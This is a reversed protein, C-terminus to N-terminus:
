SPTIEQLCDWLDFFARGINQLDLVKKETLVYCIQNVSDNAERKLKCM